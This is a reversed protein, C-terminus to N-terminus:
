NTRQTWLFTPVTKLLASTYLIVCRVAVILYSFIIMSKLQQHYEDDYENCKPCMEKVSGKFNKGCELMGFRAILLTKAQQKTSLLIEDLPARQYTDKTLHEIILKTKTKPM